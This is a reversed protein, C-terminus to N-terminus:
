WLDSKDVDRSCFCRRGGRGLVGMKLGCDNLFWPLFFSFFLCSNFDMFRASCLMYMADGVGCCFCRVGEVEGVGDNM